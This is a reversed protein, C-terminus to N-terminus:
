GPAITGARKLRMVAPPTLLTPEVNRSCSGSACARAGATSSCAAVNTGRRRPARGSLTRAQARGADKSPRGITPGIGPTSPRNTQAPWPGHPMEAPGAEASITLWWISPRVLALPVDVATWVPMGSSLASLSPRRAVHAPLQWDLPVSGFVDNTGNHGNTGWPVTPWHGTRPAGAM